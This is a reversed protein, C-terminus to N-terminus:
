KQTELLAKVDSNELLAKVDSNELMANVDPNELMSNLDPNELLAKVNPNELMSNLNANQPEANVSPIEAESKTNTTLSNEQSLATPAITGPGPGPPEGAANVLCDDFADEIANESAVPPAGGPILDNFGAQPEEEQCVTFINDTTTGILATATGAEQNNSGFNLALDACKLCQAQPDEAVPTVEPIELDCLQVDAVEVTRDPALGLAMGLNTTDDCTAFIDLNCDTTADSVLVGPLDTADGCTEQLPTDVSCAEAIVSGAKVLHGALASEPPCIIPCNEKKDVVLGSGPCTFKTDKPDKPDKRDDHIKIDCFEVSSVFFGEFPGTRCEYKKDKTPYKNYTDDTKYSTQDYSADSRQQDYSSKDYNNSYSTDYSYDMDYSRTYPDNGYTSQQYRNDDNYQHRKDDNYQHRKDDKDKGSAMATSFMNMNLSTGILLTAILFLSVIVSKNM